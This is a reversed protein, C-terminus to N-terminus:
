IKYINIGKIKEDNIYDFNNILNKYFNKKSLHKFKELNILSLNLKLCKNNNNNPVFHFPSIIQRTKLKNWDFGKFWPHIKLENINNYGIRKKYDYIILKNMFDICNKSFNKLGNNDVIVNNNNMERKINSPYTKFIFFYIITGLRYYDSNYDYESFNLMEPPSAKEYPIIYAQKNDKNKYKISFSFDILNFYKDKDMIINEMKIDRHIIKKKRLLTLAQIVCASMFKIQEETLNIMKFYKLYKGEFFTTIIYLNDYDQFSSIINQM